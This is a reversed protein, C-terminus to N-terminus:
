PTESRKLRALRALVAEMTLQKPGGRGHKVRHQWTSYTGRSVGIIALFDRWQMDRSAREVRLLRMFEKHDIM